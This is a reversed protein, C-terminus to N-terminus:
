LIEVFIKQTCHLNRTKWLEVIDGKQAYMIVFKEKCYVSKFFDIIECFFHTDFESKLKM